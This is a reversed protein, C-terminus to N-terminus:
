AVAKLRALLASKPGTDDLDKDRALAALEDLRMDRLRPKRAGKGDGTGSFVTAMPADRTFARLDELFAAPQGTIAAGGRPPESMSAGCEGCFKVVTPNAHGDKCLAVQVSPTGAIATAITEPLALGTLKALAMAMLRREDLVGRKDFDERQIREDYTEPIGSITPSWKPNYRLHDECSPCDLAWTKVPAGHEVPRGHGGPTGCGGHADASVGVWMVDTAAYLVM